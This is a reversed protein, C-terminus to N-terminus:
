STCSNHSSLFKRQEKYHRTLMWAGTHPILLGHELLALTLKRICILFKSRWNELGHFFTYKSVYNKINYIENTFIVKSCLLFAQQQERKICAFTEWARFESLGDTRTCALRGTQFDCTTSLTFAYNPWFSDMRNSSEWPFHRQSTRHYTMHGLSLHFSLSNASLDVPDWYDWLHM